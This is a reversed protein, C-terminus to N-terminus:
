GQARWDTLGRDPPVIRGVRRFGQRTFDAPTAQLQEFFRHIQGHHPDRYGRRRIGRGEEGLKGFRWLTQRDKKLYFL